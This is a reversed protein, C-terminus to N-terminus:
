RIVVLQQTSSFSSNSLTVFYHGNAFTSLDINLQTQTSNVEQQSIIKGIQNTIYLQCPTKIAQSFSLTVQTNTPNPFLKFIQNNNSDTINTQLLSLKIIRIDPVARGAGEYYYNSNETSNNSGVCIIDDNPLIELMAFREGESNDYLYKGKIDGSAPDVQIMWPTYSSFVRGAGDRDTSYMTGTFVLDGNNLWYGNNFRDDLSGGYFHFDSCNGLTDLTAYFAEFNVTDLCGNSGNKSLYYGYIIYNGDPKELLKCDFHYNSTTDGYFMNKVVTGNTDLYCIWNFLPAPKNALDFDNSNTTACITILGDNNILVTRLSESGTGGINQQWMIDGQNSIKMVVIDNDGYNNAIDGDTFEGDHGFVVIYGNNNPLATLTGYEESGSSGLCLHWLLTGNPSFKMLAFDEYYYDYNTHNNRGDGFKCESFGGMIFNGDQTKYVRGSGDDGGLNLERSRILNGLSDVFYLLVNRSNIHGERKIVGSILYENNYAPYIGSVTEENITGIINEWVVQASVHTYSLVSLFLIFIYKNFNLM